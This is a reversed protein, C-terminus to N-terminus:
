RGSRNALGVGIGMSFCAQAFAFALYGLSIPLQLLISNLILTTIAVGAAVISFHRWRVARDVSSAAWFFGASIVVASIVLYAIGPIGILLGWFFGVLNGVLQLIGIHVM